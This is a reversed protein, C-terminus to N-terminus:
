SLVDWINSNTCSMKHIVTEGQARKCNMYDLKTQLIMQIANHDTLPAKSILLDSVFEALADFGAM